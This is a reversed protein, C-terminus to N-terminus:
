AAHLASQWEDFSLAGQPFQQPSPLTRADEIEVMDFAVSPEQKLLDDRHSQLTDDALLLM